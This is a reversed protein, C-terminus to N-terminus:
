NSRENTEKEGGKNMGLEMKTQTKSNNSGLNRWVSRQKSTNEERCGTRSNKTQPVISKATPKRIKNNCVDKTIYGGYKARVLYYM